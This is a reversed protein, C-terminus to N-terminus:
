VAASVLFRGFGDVSVDPLAAPLVATQWPLLPERHNEWCLTCGKATATLFQMKGTPLSLKGSLDYASLRFHPDSVLLTRRGGPLDETEETRVPVSNVNSVAVAQEIHLQRPKGDKGIRGWDWLRYTLDSAQQIEYCRIGSGLAHVTGAPIYFVDGAHVETRCLSSELKGADLVSRLSEGHTDIGYVLQAGPAADLIYWAESKGPKGEHSLAYADDPHVQVSLPQRTDLFKLLLPFGDEDSGTLRKGWLPLLDRLTIGALEGNAVRSELGPLASVELSEGTIDEPSDKGFLEKLAHGGWPTESGHRFSPTMILPYVNM